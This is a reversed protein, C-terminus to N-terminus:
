LALAPMNSVAVVGTKTLQTCFVVIGAVYRSGEVCRPLWSASAHSRRHRLSQVVTESQPPMKSPPQAGRIEGNTFECMM